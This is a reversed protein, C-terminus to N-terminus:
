GVINVTGPSSVSLNQATIFGFNIPDGSATVAIEAAPAEVAGAVNDIANGSAAIELEDTDAPVQYLTVGVYPGSNAPSLQINNKVASNLTVQGSVIYFFVGNGILSDDNAAISLATGSASNFSYDGAGFTISDKFGTEEVPGQFLYNGPQFTLKIGTNSLDIGNPYVGPTCSVNTNKEFLAHLSYM